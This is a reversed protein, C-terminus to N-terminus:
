DEKVREEGTSASDASLEHVGESETTNVLLLLNKLDFNIEQPMEEGLDGLAHRKVLNCILSAMMFTNYIIAQATCAVEFTEDDGHLTSEYFAIDEPSSPDVCYIRGVEGGMRGDLLLPVALNKRIARWIASRAGMRDVGVICVGQLPERGTIARQEAIVECDAFDQLVEALVEVKASGVRDLPYIQNPLNHDEIIDPDFLRLEACGMKALTLATPSGIGGCGIISIPFDLEEPSVLDLQRLFDM